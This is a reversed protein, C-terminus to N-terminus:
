INLLMGAVMFGEKNLKDKTIKMAKLESKVGKVKPLNNFKEVDLSGDSKLPREKLPITSIEALLNIVKIRNM